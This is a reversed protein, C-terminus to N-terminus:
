AKINISLLITVEETDLIPGGAKDKYVESVGHTRNRSDLPLLIKHINSVKRINLIRHTNLAKRLDVTKHLNPATKGTKM